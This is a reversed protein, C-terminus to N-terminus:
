SDSMMGYLSGQIRKQFMTLELLGSRSMVLRLRPGAATAVVTGAKRIAASRPPSTARRHHRRRTVIAATRARVTPSRGRSSPQKRPRDGFADTAGFELAPRRTQVPVPDVAIIARRVARAQRGPHREDGIGGIGMVIVVDGPRVQAANFQPDGGPQYPAASSPPLTSHSTRTSRSASCEPM